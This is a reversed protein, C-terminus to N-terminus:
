FNGDRLKKVTSPRDHPKAMAEGARKQAEVADKAAEAEADMRGQRRAQIVLLIVLVVLFLVASGGAAVLLNM